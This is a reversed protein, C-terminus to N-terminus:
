KADKAGFASRIRRRRRDAQDVVARLVAPAERRAAYMPGASRRGPAQDPRRGEASEARDLRQGRVAPAYIEAPLWVEGAEADIFGLRDRPVRPPEFASQAPQWRARDIALSRKLIDVVELQGRSTKGDGRDEIWWAFVMAAARTAAGKEWDVIEWETALEGALAIQALHRAVRRAEEGVKHDGILVATRDALRSLVVAKFTEQAKLEQTLREIFAWGAVGHCEDTAQRLRQEAREGEEVTKVTEFVGHPLREKDVRLSILRVDQGGLHGRQDGRAERLIDDLSPEGTSFMITRWTIPQRRKADRTLRSRGRGTFGRYIIERATWVNVTTLEDRLEFTDNADQLESEIANTTATWQRMGSVPATFVSLAARGAVTKGASSPGHAHIGFPDQGLPSLLPGALACSIAFTILRDKRHPRAVRQNWEELTGRRMLYPEGLALLVNDTQTGIVGEDHVFALKDGIQHWGRKDFAHFTPLHARDCDVLYRVLAEHDAAAPGVQLGAQTLRVALEGRAKPSHLDVASALLPKGNAGIRLVLGRQETRGIISFPDCVKLAAGKSTMRVLGDVRMEVKVPAADGPAYRPLKQGRTISKRVAKMIADLTRFKDSNRQTAEALAHATQSEAFAGGAIYQGAIFCARHRVTERDGQHAFRIM